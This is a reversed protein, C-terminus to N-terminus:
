KTNLHPTKEATITDKIRLSAKIILLIYCAKVNRFESWNLAIPQTQHRKKM